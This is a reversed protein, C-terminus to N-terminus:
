CYGSGLGRTSSVSIYSKCVPDQAFVNNDLSCSLRKGPLQGEERAYLLNLRGGLYRLRMFM